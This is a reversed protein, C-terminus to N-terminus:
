AQCHTCYVTSRQGLRIEKLPRTCQVCAEGGRGYVALSQKFYGPEGDGGVFDRLTTGGQTIAQQLIDKIAIVLREYAARSVKGAKRRPSVGARFLAENAYINGVGVVVHSDMLFSKVAMNRKRSRAFLYDANFDSELPEPGLGELLVHKYPEQGAWLICGFRRPDHYRLISGNNLIIDVHDHKKTADKEKVIRLSGSMGLHILLYGAGTELLLYKGRRKVGRIRQGPLERQIEASVPWRLQPQRVKVERINKGRIHPEIGRRTTEVEPLEPM